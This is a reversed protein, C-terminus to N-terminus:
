VNKNIEQHYTWLDELTPDTPILRDSPPTIEKEIAVRYVTAKGCNRQSLVIGCALFMQESETLAEATIEYVHHDLTHRFDHYSGDYILEGHSLMLVYDALMDMDDLIHTALLVTKGASFQQILQYFHVRERPDIGATPEDLIIIQPNGLLATAIGVRRQMGISCEKLKKNLVQEINVQKAIEQIQALFEDKKFGKAKAVFRLIENVKLSPYIDFEQPLYAMQQKRTADNVIQGDVLIPAKSDLASVLLKILTSKGSGNEGVLLTIGQNLSFSVQNLVCQGKKYEYTLNNVTFMINHIVFVMRFPTTKM